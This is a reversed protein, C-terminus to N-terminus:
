QLSEVLKWDQIGEEYKLMFRIKRNRSLNKLKQELAESARLSDKSASWLLTWPAGQSTYLSESRNHEILRNELNTTQGVYFRNLKRSYLIYIHYPMHYYTTSVINM